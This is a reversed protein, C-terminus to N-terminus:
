PASKNCLYATLMGDQEKKEIHFGAKELMGELIWDLTSFEDRIHGILDELLESGAKDAVSSIWGNFYEECSEMGSPFVVDSLFFRGGSKLLKHIKRLAEMKWFDPLHHLALQTVVADPPEGRHRYTLFGAHFFNINAMGRKEAKKRAYELMLRSVDVGYVARCRRAAALAFEGTGAGFEVLVHNHDIKMLDLIKVAEQEVNRLRGMRMDYAAVEDFNEYDTGVQRM